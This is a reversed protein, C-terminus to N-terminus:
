EGAKIEVIGNEDAFRKEINAGKSKEWGDLMIIHTCEALMRMTLDMYFDYPLGQPFVCPNLVIDYPHALLHKRHAALFASRNAYAYGTIPGSIFVIRPVYDDIAPNEIIPVLGALYLNETAYSM